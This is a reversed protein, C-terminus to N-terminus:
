KIFLNQNHEAVGRGRCWGLTVSFRYAATLPMGGERKQKENQFNKTKESKKGGPLMSTAAMRPEGLGGSAPSRRWREGLEGNASSRHRQGQGVCAWRSGCAQWRVSM